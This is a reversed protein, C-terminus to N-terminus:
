TSLAARIWEEAPQGSVGAETRYIRCALVFTEREDTHPEVDQGNVRVSPSGLFRLRVAEEPSTVEVLRLELEIGDGAAVREVLERTPRYNPCGAFYLLEM